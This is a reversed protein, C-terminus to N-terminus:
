ECDKFLDDGTDKSNKKKSEEIIKKKEEKSMAASDALGQESTQETELSISTEKAPLEPMDPTIKMWAEKKLQEITYIGKKSFDGEKVMHYEGKSIKNIRAWGKKGFLTTDKMLLEDGVKLNAPSIETAIAIKKDEIKKNIEQYYGTGRALFYAQSMVEIENEILKMDGPTRANAIKTELPVETEERKIAIVGSPKPLWGIEQTSDLPVVKISPEGRFASKIIRVKGDKPILEAKVYVANGAFDITRVDDLAVYPKGKHYFITVPLEESDLEDLENYLYTSKDNNSLGQFLAGASQPTATPATEPAKAVPQTIAKKLESRWNPNAMNIVPIGKRAAMDVAQLTGGKKPRAGKGEWGSKDYALVFDVPTDLNSGFIQNTNRAMLNAVYRAAKEPDKNRAKAKRRSADLMIDWAPHIEEAVVHEISGASKSGSFVEKKTAGKEFAQDAGIANGSRLTYGLSQLYKAAETMKDLIPTPTERSGIGAYIMTPTTSKGPLKDFEPTNGTPTPKATPGETVEQNILDMNSNYVELFADVNDKTPNKKAENMIGLEDQSLSLMGREQFEILQTIKDIIENGTAAPQTVDPVDVPREVDLLSFIDHTTPVEISLNGQETPLARLERRTEVGAERIKLEQVPFINIKMNVGTRQLMLERYANLQKTYKLANGYLDTDVDEFNERLHSTSTKLDVIRAVLKGTSLRQWILFDISGATPEKLKGWLPPLDAIINWGKDTLQKDVSQVIEYYQTLYEDTVWSPVKFVAKEGERKAKLEAATALFQELTLTVGKNKEDFYARALDDLHTGRYAGEKGGTFEETKIVDTVRKFTEGTKPDVYTKEDESIELTRDYLSALEQPVGKPALGTETPAGKQGPTSPELGGKVEQVEGPTSTTPTPVIEVETKNEYDILIKDDLTTKPDMLKAFATDMDLGYKDLFEGKLQNVKYLPNNENAFAVIDKKKIGKPYLNIIDYIWNIIDQESYDNAGAEIVDEIIKEVVGDVSEGNPSLWAKKSIDTTNNDVDSGTLFKTGMLGTMIVEEPTISAEMNSAGGDPGYLSMLNEFEANAERRQANTLSVQWWSTIAAPMNSFKEALKAISRSNTILRGRSNIYEYKGLARNFRAKNGRGLNIILGELIKNEAGRETVEIEAPKGTNFEAIITSAQTSTKVFKDFPLVFGKTIMSDYKEYAQNLKQVLAEPMDKIPTDTSIGLDQIIPPQDEVVEEETPTGPAEEKAPHLVRYEKIIEMIKNYKETDPMVAGESPINSFFQLNNDEGKKFAEVSSTPMHVGLDFIKNLAENGEIQDQFEEIAKKVIEGRRALMDKKSMYLRNVTTLFNEPDHIFNVFQALSKQDKDLELYDMLANFSPAVKDDLLSENNNKALTKMYKLYDSRLNDIAREVRTAGTFAEELAGMATVEPEVPAAGEVPTKEPARTEDVLVEVAEISNILSNLDNLQANLKVAKTRQRPDGDKYIGIQTKLALIMDNRQDEDLLSTIDNPSINALPMLKGGFDDFINKMRSITKNFTYHGFAAHFRVAKFAKKKVKENVWQPTGEKYSEIDSPDEFRDTFGEYSKKIDEAETIMNEVREHLTRGEVDGTKIQGFAETLQQESMGRYEKLADLFTEYQGHELLTKVHDYMAANKTDLYGKRDNLDEYGRMQRALNKQSIMNEEIFTAMETTNLVSENMAAVIDDAQKDLAAKRETYNKAFRGKYDSIISQPIQLIGGMLFGSLFTEFGQGSLQSAAGMSMSARYQQAGALLPDEYIKKYYDTLGTSIMDQMSEQAGEFFNAKSYNLTGLLIKTPSQKWYNTKLFKKFGEPAKEFPVTKGLKGVNRIVDRAALAEAKNLWKPSFGSLAKGFVMDNTVMLLPMNYLQVKFNTEKALDYIRDADADAATKGNKDYFEGMLDDVMRIQAGDGELKSEGYAARIRILDRGFAGATTSAKALGELGKYGKAATAFGYAAETTNKLPNLFQAAEVGLRGAKAATWFNTVKETGRLAELFKKTDNIDKLFGMAKGARALRSAMAPLVLGTNTGGSAAMAAGLALEEVILDGAVGATYAFNALLNTTFGGVGGKSSTAITLRRDFDEADASGWMSKVGELALGTWQKTMRSFDQAWSSKENYATENDRFPSYGLKDYLPHTYYRDFDANYKGTNFSYPRGWKFEDKSTNGVNEAETMLNNIRDETSFSRIKSGPDPGEIANGGVVTSAPSPKMQYVDPLRALDFSDLSVLDDMRKRSKQIDGLVKTADATQKEVKPANDLLESLSPGGPTEAM